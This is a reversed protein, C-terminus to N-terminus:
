ENEIVEESEKHEYDTLHQDFAETIQERRVKRILEVLRKNEESNESMSDGSLIGIELM